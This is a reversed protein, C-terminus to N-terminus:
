EQLMTKADKPPLPTKDVLPQWHTKVFHAATDLGDDLYLAAIIAECTDALLAPNQRGGMRAEGLSMCIFKGLHLNQAIEWLSEMRVLESHRRSIDGEDEAPFRELLMDAVVLGLVRDGLFELRENSKPHVNDTAKVSPHTVATKLHECDTFTHGLISMLATLETETPSSVKM